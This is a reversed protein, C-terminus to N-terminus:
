PQNGGQHCSRQIVRQENGTEFILVHQRLRARAIRGGVTLLNDAQRRYLLQFFLNIDDGRRIQVHQNAAFGAGAFFQHRFRNMLPRRPRGIRQDIQVTRRQRLAHRFALQEPM